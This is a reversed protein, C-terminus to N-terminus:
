KNSKQILFGFTCIDPESAHYWPCCRSSYTTSCIIGFSIMRTSNRRPNRISGFILRINRLTTASRTAL